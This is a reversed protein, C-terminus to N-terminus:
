ADVLLGNRLWGHYRGVFHISPHATVAPPEGTRTWPKGDTSPADIVWEGAPTIVVLTRGDPGKWHPHWDAFYMAGVPAERLTCLAGTDARQYLRHVNRQWNDESKFSYGCECRMPFREDARDVDDTGYGALTERAFPVEGLVRVANHYGYPLPCKGAEPDGAIGSYRRLSEQGRETPEFMFCKITTM